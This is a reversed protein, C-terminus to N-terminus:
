VATGGELGTLALPPELSRIEIGVVELAPQPDHQRLLGSRLHMGSAAAQQLYYKDFSLLGDARRCRM